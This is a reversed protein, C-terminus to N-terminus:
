EIGRVAAVQLLMSRVVPAIPESGIRGRTVACALATLPRDHVREVGALEEASVTVVVKSGPSWV